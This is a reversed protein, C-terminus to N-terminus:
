GPFATDFRMIRVRVPERIGRSSAFNRVREILPYDLTIGQQLVMFGDKTLLDEELIL